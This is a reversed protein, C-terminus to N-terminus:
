ASSSLWRASMPPAGSSPGRCMQHFKTELEFSRMSCALRSQLSPRNAFTGPSSISNMGSGSPEYNRRNTSARCHRLDSQSPQGPLSASCPSIMPRDDDYNRRCSAKASGPGGSGTPCRASDHSIKRATLVARFVLGGLFGSAQFSANRLAGFPGGRLGSWSLSTSRNSFSRAAPARPYVSSSASSSRYGRRLHLAPEELDVIRDKSLDALAANTALQHLLQTGKLLLPREGDVNPSNRITWAVPPQQGPNRRGVSPLDQEM